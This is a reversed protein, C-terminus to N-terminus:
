CNIINTLYDLRSSEIANEDKSDVTEIKEIKQNINTM